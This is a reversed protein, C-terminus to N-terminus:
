PEVCVVVGFVRVSFFLLGGPMLGDFLLLRVSRKLFNVEIYGEILAVFLTQIVRFYRIFRAGVTGEM